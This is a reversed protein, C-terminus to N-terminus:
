YKDLAKLLTKIEETEKPESNLLVDAIGTICDEVKIAYYEDSDEADQKRILTRLMKEMTYWWM